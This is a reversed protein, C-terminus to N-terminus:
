YCRNMVNLNEEVLESQEEIEGQTKESTLRQQCRSNKSEGDRMQVKNEEKKERQREGEQWGKGKRRARERQLLSLGSNDMVWHIPDLYMRGWAREMQIEKKKLGM